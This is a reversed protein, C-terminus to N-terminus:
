YTAAAIRGKATLSDVAAVREATSAAAVVHHAHLAHHKSILLWAMVHAKRVRAHDITLDIYAWM